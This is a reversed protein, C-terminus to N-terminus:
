FDDEENDEVPGMIEEETGPTNFHSLFWVENWFMGCEECEMTRFGTSGEVMVEGREKPRAEGCSPCFGGGSKAYRVSADWGCGVEHGLAACAEALTMAMMSGHPPEEGPAALLLPIGPPLGKLMKRLIEAVNEALPTKEVVPAEERKGEIAGGLAEVKGLLHVGVASVEAAVARTGGPRLLKALTVLLHVALLLLDRMIPVNDRGGDQALTCPM